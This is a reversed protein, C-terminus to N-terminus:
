AGMGALGRRELLEKEEIELLESRLVALDEEVEAIEGELKGKRKGADQKRSREVWKWGAIRSKLWGGIPSLGVMTVIAIVAMLKYTLGMELVGVWGIWYLTGLMAALSVAEPLMPLGLRKTLGKLQSPGVWMVTFVCYLIGVLGLTHSLVLIRPINDAFNYYSTLGPGGNSELASWVDGFGVIGIGACLGVLLYLLGKSVTKVLKSRGADTFLFAFIGMDLLAQWM